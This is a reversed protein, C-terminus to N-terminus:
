KKTLERATQATEQEQENISVASKHEKPNKEREKDQKNM